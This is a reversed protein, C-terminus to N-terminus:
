RYAADKNDTDPLVVNGSDTAEEESGTYVTTSFLLLPVSHFAQGGGISTFYDNLMDAVIDNRVGPPRPVGACHQYAQSWCKRATAVFASVQESPIPRTKMATWM